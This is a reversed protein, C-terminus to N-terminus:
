SDVRDPSRTSTVRATPATPWSSYKGDRRYFRAADGCYVFVADDFNGHVTTDSAVTMAHDHNSGRWAEYAAEDCTTCQQRGVFQAPGTKLGASRDGGLYLAVALSVVVGVAIGVAIWRRGPQNASM